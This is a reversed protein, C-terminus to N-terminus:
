STIIFLLPFGRVIECSRVFKVLTQPRKKDAKGSAKGRNGAYLPSDDYTRKALFHLLLDRHAVPTRAVGDPEHRQIQYEIQDTEGQQFLVHGHGVTPDMACQVSRFLTMYP